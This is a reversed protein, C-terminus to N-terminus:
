AAPLDAVSGKALVEAKWKTALAQAIAVGAVRESRLVDGGHGCRLELGAETKCLECTLATGRAGDLRWFLLMSNVSPTVPRAPERQSRPAWHKFM